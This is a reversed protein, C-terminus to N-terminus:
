RETEDLRNEPILVSKWFDFMGFFIGGGLTIWTVRPGIGSFLKVAGEEKVLNRFISLFNQTGDESLMVRTKLVDLPTTMAAALGGALSGCLAVEYPKLSCLPCEGTIRVSEECRLVCPVDRNCRYSRVHAFQIKFYEFLPLQIASFPLDRFLTAGYGRYLSKLWGPQGIGRTVLQVLPVEANTQGVQRRQKLLEGPVRIISTMLEAISSAMLSQGYIGLCSFRPAALLSKLKEYTVFFTAASPASVLLAPGLGQFLGKRFGGSAVIGVRSQLRTKITDLPFLVLDVSVGALGGAVLWTGEYM